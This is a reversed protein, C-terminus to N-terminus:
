YRRDPNIYENYTDEPKQEPSTFFNYDLQPLPKLIPPPTARRKKLIPVARWDMRKARIPKRNSHFAIIEDENLENIDRATLLPVAQESLSQSSEEGNRLTQSHSFESRHGLSAAIDKATETDSQWYFVKSLMNNRITRAKYRGYFSEIQSNDQYALWISIGRSRVTSVYQPLSPLGVTGAEDLIALTPHCNRGKTNDFTDIMESLISELVLRIVPAKSLLDKEPFCLYVTVPKKGAIIHPTHM